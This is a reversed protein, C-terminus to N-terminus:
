FINWINEEIKCHTRLNTSMLSGTVNLHLLGRKINYKSTISYTHAYPFLVLNDTAYLTGSLSIDVRAYSKINHLKLLWSIKPYDSFNYYVILLYAKVVLNEVITQNELSMNLFLIFNNYKFVHNVQISWVHTCLVLVFAFISFIRQRDCSSKFSVSTRRHIAM